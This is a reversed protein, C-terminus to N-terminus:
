TGSILTSPCDPAWWPRGGAPTPDEAHSAAHADPSLGTLLLIGNDRAANLRGFTEYAIRAGQLTGGRKMSFGAPLDVYRSAPPIFERM